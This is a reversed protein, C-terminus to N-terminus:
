PGNVSVISRNSAAQDVWSAASLCSAPPIRSPMEQGQARWELREVSDSPWSKKKAGAAGRELSRVRAEAPCPAGAAWNRERTDGCQRGVVGEVLMKGRLKRQGLERKEEGQHAASWQELIFLPSPSLHEEQSTQRPGFVTGRRAVQVPPDHM